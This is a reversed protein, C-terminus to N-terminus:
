LEDYQQTYQSNNIILQPNNGERSNWSSLAARWSRMPNNGVRWGNSDYFDIFSQPNINYGKTTIYESVEDFSPPTFRKATRKNDGINENNNDNVNDNVNPTKSIVGTPNEISGGGSNKKPRGGRKGAESGKCGDSYRKWNADLQPKFALWLAKAIGSLEPKKRDLAYNAIAEYIQLKEENNAENIADRFSRYFIYSDRTSSGM